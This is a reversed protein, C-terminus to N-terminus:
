KYASKNKTSADENIIEERKEQTILNNSAEFIPIPDFKEEGFWMNALCLTQKYFTYHRADLDAM